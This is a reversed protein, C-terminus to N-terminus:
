VNQPEKFYTVSLEKTLPIGPCLEKITIEQKQRVTSEKLINKRYQIIPIILSQVKIKLKLFNNFLFVLKM